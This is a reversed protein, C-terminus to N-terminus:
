DELLLLQDMFSVEAQHLSKRVELGPCLVRLAWELELAELFPRNVVLLELVVWSAWVALMQKRSRKRPQLNGNFSHRDLSVARM